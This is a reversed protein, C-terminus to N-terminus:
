EICIRVTVRNGNNITDVNVLEGESGEKILNLIETVNIDMGEIKLKDKPVLKLGTEALAIPFNINVKTVNEETVLVKLFKKSPSKTIVADDQSEGVGALLKEAEAVNIKGASLMELIFKKEDSM